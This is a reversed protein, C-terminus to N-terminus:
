LIFHGSKVFYFLGMYIRKLLHRDAMSNAINLVQECGKREFRFFFSSVYEKLEEGLTKPM